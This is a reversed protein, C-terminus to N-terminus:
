RSEVEEAAVIEERNTCSGLLSKAVFPNYKNFYQLIIFVNLIRYFALLKGLFYSSHGQDGRLDIGRLSKKGRSSFTSTLLKHINM